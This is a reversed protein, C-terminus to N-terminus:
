RPRDAATRRLRRQPDRCEMVQHLRDLLLTRNPLGTLHDFFALEQIKGEAKRRESIDEVISWIYQKGDEGPVLVGNLRLPIRSGDKRM